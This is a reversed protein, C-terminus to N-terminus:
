TTNQEQVLPGYKDILALTKAVDRSKVASVIEQHQRMLEESYGTKRPVVKMFEYVLHRRLLHMVHSMFQNDALEVFRLHFDIDAEAQAELSNDQQGIREVLRGLEAIQEDTTKEVVRPACFREILMRLEILDKIAHDNLDFASTIVSTYYDVAKAGGGVITGKGPKITVMGLPVLQRLAERVVRRSVGIQEALAAESPLLDGATLHNESIIRRIQDIAAEVLSGKKVRRASAKRSALPPAIEDPARADKVHTRESARESNV